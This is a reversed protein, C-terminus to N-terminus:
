NEVILIRSRREESVDAVKYNEVFLTVDWFSSFKEYNQFKPRKKL